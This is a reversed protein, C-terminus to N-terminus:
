LTWHFSHDEVLDDNSLAVTPVSLVYWTKTTYAATSILSISLLLRERFARSRRVERRMEEEEASAGM